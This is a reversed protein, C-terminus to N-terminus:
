CNGAYAVGWFYSNKTTDAWGHEASFHLAGEM